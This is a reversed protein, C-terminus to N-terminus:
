YEAEDCAVYFAGMSEIKKSLEKDKKECEKTAFNTSLTTACSIHRRLGKELAEKLKSNRFARIPLNAGISADVLKLM